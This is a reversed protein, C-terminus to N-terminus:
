AKFCRCCLFGNDLHIMRNFKKLQHSQKPLNFKDLFKWGPLSFRAGNDSFKCFQFAGNEFFAPFFTICGTKEYNGPFYSFCVVNPTKWYKEKLNLRNYSKEFNARM